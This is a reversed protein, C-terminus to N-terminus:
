VPLYTHSPSGECKYCMTDEQIVCQIKRGGSGCEWVKEGLPAAVIWCKAATFSAAKVGGNSASADFGGLLPAAVLWGVFTLALALALM